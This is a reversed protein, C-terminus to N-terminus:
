PIVQVSLRLTDPQTYGREHQAVLVIQNTGAAEPVYQWSTLGLSLAIPVKQLVSITDRGENCQSLRGLGAQQYYQLQYGYKSYYSDTLLELPLAYPQHLRLTPALSGANLKIRYNAQIDLSESQCGAILCFLTLYVLPRM